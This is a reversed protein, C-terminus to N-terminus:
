NCIEYEKDWLIITKTENDNGQEEDTYTGNMEYEEGWLIVTNADTEVNADQKGCGVCIVMMVMSAATVMLKLINKKNM